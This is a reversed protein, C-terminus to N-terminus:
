GALRPQKSWEYGNRARSYGYDFLARMYGPDFPEPLKLTFDPGIYALNYDVNDRLANYYIRLTDNYGSAFIMTSIARGAIGLMQRRVEAWHPDLRGNRILYASIDAVPQKAAIRQRREVSLRAPYLFSQMFAGGDVHMEQYPKGNLTADFMTPPFAGPIAASALLIRRVTDLARPHGSKAIAGINWVVPQQADLDTTGILLLRGDDYAAAIAALMREDLIRSITRHLPANDALADDFLAATIYRERLVDAPSIGTYVYRLQADYASGLFAFPATLAGTSVGTVLDFTPRDGHESWGCLVGAGFAGDEGGGSVALFRFDLDSITRAGLRARQREAAAMFEATIPGADLAAFFRENSLGLITAQQMQGNPVPLGREPAGCGALLATGATAGGAAVHLFQRRSKM